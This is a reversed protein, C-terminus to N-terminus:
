GPGDLWHDGVGVPRARVRPKRRTASSIGNWFIRVISVFSLLTFTATWILFSIGAMIMLSPVLAGPGGAYVLVPFSTLVIVANLLVSKLVTRRFSSPPSEDGNDTDLEPKLTLPNMPSEPSFRARHDDNACILM